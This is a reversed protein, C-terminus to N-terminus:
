WDDSRFPAAPLGAGNYLTVAPTNHWAYRVAVPEAVADSELVVTAGDVRDTAPHFVKDAGALEFGTTEGVTVRLGDGHEFEVRLAKGQREMKKFVPGSSEIDKGYTGRLATLALRRGVDQKNLPHINGPDGLDVTVAAGTNPLEIAKMQAERQFAWQQGTTDGRATFNPLQAFYFPLEGQGFDRRWQAIMDKFLTGYEGHRPANSEGQYWIVGRVAYPILPHIMANFLGSPTRHSGSGQPMRPAAFTFEAGAAKAAASEENWKALAAEYEVMRQPYEDLLQQWRAAINGTYPGSKIAADSMWSEIQTGGWNSNILGVPVGLESMLERAFYYGVATFTGVTAPSCVAWAGTITELPGESVTREVTLQRILPHNAAAIETEANQARAVTWEMNSQGSCIWVEGVVVNSARATSNGTAILDAGEASADMPDLTVQWRGNGDAVAERKQGHFEVAVREGPAASGWVPVPKGQQLVASDGFLPHLVVEARSAATVAVLVALVPLWAVPHSHFFERPRMFSHFHTSAAPAPAWDPSVGALNGCGRADALLDFRADM